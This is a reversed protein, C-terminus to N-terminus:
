TIIDSKWFNDITYHHLAFLTGPELRPIVFVNGQRKFDEWWVVLSFSYYVYNFDKNEM